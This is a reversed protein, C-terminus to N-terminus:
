EQNSTESERSESSEVKTMISDLILVVVEQFLEEECGNLDM